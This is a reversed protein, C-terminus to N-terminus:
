RSVQSSEFKNFSEKHEESTECSSKPKSTDSESVEDLVKQLNEDNELINM